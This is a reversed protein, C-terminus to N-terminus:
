PFGPLLLGAKDICKAANPFTNRGEFLKQFREEGDGLRDWRKAHQFNM